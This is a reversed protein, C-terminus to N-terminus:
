NLTIVDLLNKFLVFEMSFDTFDTVSRILGTIKKPSFIEDKVVFLYYSFIVVM